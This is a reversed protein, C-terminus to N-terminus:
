KSVVLMSHSQYAGSTGNRAWEIAITNNMSDGDIGMCHVTHSQMHYLSKIMKDNLYITAM